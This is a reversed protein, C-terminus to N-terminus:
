DASWPSNSFPGTTYPNTQSTLELGPDPGLLGVFPETALVPIQMSINSTTDSSDSLYLLQLNTLCFFEHTQPAPFYYGVVILPLTTLNSSTYPSGCFFFQMRGVSNYSHIAFSASLWPLHLNSLGIIHVRSNTRLNSSDFTLIM